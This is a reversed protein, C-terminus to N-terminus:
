SVSEVMRHRMASDRMQRLGRRLMKLLTRLAQVPHRLMRLPNRLGRVPDWLQGIIGDSVEGDIGYVMPRRDNPMFYTRFMIDWIPLFVSYNTSRADVENSHHWHHFEPTIVVKHLPRWRWRVNAHLFLGTVIQIVLLAGSFEASFGAVLLLVFAPAALVGDFPHGRFGSVWDLHKTSHHIRHFRWMFPIEHSFRHTWYIGLDFVLIGLVGRLADPLALM